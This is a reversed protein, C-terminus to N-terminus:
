LSAGTDNRSAGAPARGTQLAAHLLAALRGSDRDDLALRIPLVRSADRLQGRRGGHGLLRVWDKETTVLLAKHRAGIEMIREADRETFPHHDPFVVSEIMRGGLRELLSFFRSPNAIGAYAVLRAKRVWATDGAAGATAALVPGPFQRKLWTGAGEASRDKAQPVGNVIIADVLSLQFALPARLPGAPLVEGNGVGRSADVLAVTLDKALTPNQLGDDMVIVSPAGAAAEIASAGAARDRAILTPAVRSLLLAEDGVDAARDLDRDVWRPGGRHGGYGRTLFAPREGLRKLEKALLLAFPTKGTGGATLNGVCIVPLASRYPQAQQFRREVAWAYIKSVPRLLRVAATPATRYWWAPEELPV